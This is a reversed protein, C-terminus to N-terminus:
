SSFTHSLLALPVQTIADAKIVDQVVADEDPAAIRTAEFSRGSYFTTVEADEVESDPEDRESRATDGSAFSSSPTLPPTAPGQGHSRVPSRPIFARRHPTSLFLSCNASGSALPATNDASLSAPPQTSSLPRNRSTPSDNLDVFNARTGTLINNLIDEASSPNLNLAALSTSTKYFDANSSM